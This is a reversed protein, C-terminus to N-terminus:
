FQHNSLPERPPVFTPPSPASNHQLGLKQQDSKLAGLFHYVSNPESMKDLTLWVSAAPYNAQVHSTQYMGTLSDLAERQSDIRAKQEALEKSIPEAGGTSSLASQLGKDREEAPTQTQQQVMAVLPAVEQYLIRGGGLVTSGLFFAALAAREAGKLGDTVRDFFPKGSSEHEEEGALVRLARIEEDLSDISKRWLEKHESDGAQSLQKRQSAAISELKAINEEIAALKKSKTV